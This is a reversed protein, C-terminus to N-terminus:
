FFYGKKIKYNCKSLEGKKALELFEILKDDISIKVSYKILNIFQLNLDDMDIENNSLWTDAVLDPLKKINDNNEFWKLNLVIMPGYIDDRYYVNNNNLVSKSQRIDGKIENLKNECFRSFLNIFENRAPTEM